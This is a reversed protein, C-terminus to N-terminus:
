FFKITFTVFYKENLYIRRALVCVVNILVLFHLDQSKQIMGGGNDFFKVCAYYIFCEPLVLKNFWHYWKFATRPTSVESVNWQWPLLQFIVVTYWPTVLICYFIGVSNVKKLHTFHYTHLWWCWILSNKIMHASSITYNRMVSVWLRLKLTGMFSKVAHVYFLISKRTSRSISFRLLMRCMPLIRRWLQFRPRMSDLMVDTFSLSVIHKTEVVIM